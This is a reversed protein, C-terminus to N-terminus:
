IGIYWGESLEDLVTTGGIRQEQMADQMWGDSLEELLYRRVEMAEGKGYTIMM